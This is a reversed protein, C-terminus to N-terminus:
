LHKLLLHLCPAAEQEGQDPDEEEGKRQRSHGQNRHSDPEPGLEVVEAPALNCEDGESDEFQQQHQQPAGGLLRFGLVGEMLLSFHKMYM